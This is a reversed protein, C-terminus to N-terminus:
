KSAGGLRCVKTMYGSNLITDSRRSQQREGASHMLWRACMEVSILPAMRGGLTLAAATVAAACQQQQQGGSSNSYGGPIKDLLQVLLVLVVVHLREHDLVVEPHEDVCLDLVWGEVALDTRM